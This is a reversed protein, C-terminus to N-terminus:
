RRFLRSLVPGVKAAEACLLRRARLFPLAQELSPNIKESCSGGDLFVPKGLKTPLTKKLWDVAESDVLDSNCVDAGVLIGPASTFLFPAVM